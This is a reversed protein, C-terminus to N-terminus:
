ARRGVQGPKKKCKKPTKKAQAKTCKAAAPAADAAPVVAAGGLSLAVTAVVAVKALKNM